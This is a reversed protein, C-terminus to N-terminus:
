VDCWGECGKGLNCVCMTVIYFVNISQRAVREEHHSEDRRKERQRSSGVILAHLMKNSVKKLVYM